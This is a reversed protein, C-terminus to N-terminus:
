RGVLGMRNIIMDLAEDMATVMRAAAAYANQHQILKTMEEDLSIGMIAERQTEAHRLQLEATDLNSQGRKVVTGMEGVVARWFDALTVTQGNTLDHSVLPQGLRDAMKQINRGDMPPADPDEAAAYLRMDEVVALSNLSLRTNAPPDKYTAQFFVGGANDVGATEGAQLPRYGAAHQANLERALAAGLTELYDIHKFVWEDRAAAYGAIEGTAFRVPQGDNGAWTLIPGSGSETIEVARTKVGMVLAQTGIYVAYQGDDQERWTAGAVRALTDVLADRKDKLDNARHGRAVAQLIQGNLDAVEAALTNVQVVRSRIHQDVNGAIESLSQYSQRLVAVLSRAAERVQVRTEAADPRKALEQLAMWFQELHAQLGQEGPEHLIGEVQEVTRLWAEQEGQKGYWQRYQRDLFDDRYRAVFAEQVGTGLQVLGAQTPLNFPPTATFSIEQRSYSRNGVNAVNHSIIDLARRNADLGRQATRLGIWTLSLVCM